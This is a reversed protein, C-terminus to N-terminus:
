RHYLECEFIPGTGWDPDDKLGPIREMRIPSTPKPIVYGTATSHTALNAHEATKVDVAPAAQPLLPKPNTGGKSRNIM